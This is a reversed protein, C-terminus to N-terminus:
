AFNITSEFTVSLIIFWSLIYLFLHITLVLFSVFRSLGKAKQPPTNSRKLRVPCRLVEQWTAWTSSGFKSATGLTGGKFFFDFTL